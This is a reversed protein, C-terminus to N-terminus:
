QALVPTGDAGETSHSNSIGEDNTNTQGQFSSTTPLPNQPAVLKGVGYGIAAGATSTLAGLIPGGLYGLSGIAAGITGGAQGFQISNEQNNRITQIQPILNIGHAMSNQALDKNSHSQDISSLSKTVGLSLLDGVGGLVAGLSNQSSSGSLSTPAFLSEVPHLGTKTQATGDALITRSTYPLDTQTSQSYGTGEPVGGRIISDSSSEYSPSNLNVGLDVSDTLRDYKVGGMTVCIKVPILLDM